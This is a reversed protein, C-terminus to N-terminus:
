LPCTVRPTGRASSSARAAGAASSARAPTGSATRHPPPCAPWGAPGAPEPAAQPPAPAPRLAAPCAQSHQRASRCPPLRYTTILNCSPSWSAAHTPAVGTATHPTYRPKYAVPLCHATTHHSDTPSQSALSSTHKATQLKQQQHCQKTGNSTDHASTTYM